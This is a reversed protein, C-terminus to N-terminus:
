KNVVREYIDLLRRQEAEWSYKEEVLRRGNNGLKDAKDPNDLLYFIKEAIDKPDCPNAFLACEGFIEKWYPFNSMVMPLSCAMYEFSKNPMAEQQNPLPLFNIVGINAVKIFSYHKGYSAHGLYKTYKWGRLSKCEKKFEENEWKGLLWLEARNGVFEMAQIIEKIGRIKTLGGAYIIIPKQKNINLPKAKDILELIPFNRLTITKQSPFKKAIDSTAAVIGNFFACSLNEFKKFFLSIIKRVIPNGIWDKTLIQQPVDEHVDYIVKKGFLKLVLGVSILEPDHFHYVDAKEKLALRFLKWVVRTMREFRNRPKPLPVIRVDDVVEEKNHQAILIVDYGAKILTKAEKHFIRGDFPPHVSTLICVKKRKITKNTM